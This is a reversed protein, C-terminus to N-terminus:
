YTIAWIFIVIQCCSVTFIVKGIKSYTAILQKGLYAGLISFPLSYFSFYAVLILAEHRLSHEPNAYYSYVWFGQLSLVAILGLTIILAIILSYNRM